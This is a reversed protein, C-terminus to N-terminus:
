EKITYTVSVSVKNGQEGAIVVATRKKDADQGTWMKRNPQTVNTTMAFGASKLADEYFSIVKDMSDETTFTFSASQGEKNKVSYTGKIEAGPYAPLWDPLNDPAGAGFKATGEETKIELSGSEGSGGAEITAPEKGEETFEIKGDRAEDVNVTVTKGTNKDKVTILGKEEDVSVIELHPNLATVFKAVALAPQEEALEVVEQAKDFVYYVLVAATIGGLLVFTGCGALIWLWAKSKKQPPQPYQQYQPPPYQNQPDYNSM